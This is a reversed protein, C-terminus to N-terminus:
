KRVWVRRDVFEWTRWLVIIMGFIYFLRLAWWFDEPVAQRAFLGYEYPEQIGLFRRNFWTQPFYIICGGFVAQSIVVLNLLIVFCVKCYTIIADITNEFAEKHPLFGEFLVYIAFLSFAPFFSHLVDVGRNIQAATEFSISLMEPVM